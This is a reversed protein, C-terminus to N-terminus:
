TIYIKEKQCNTVELNQIFQKFFGMRDVRPFRFIRIISAAQIGVLYHVLIIQLKILHQNLPPVLRIKEKIFLHSKLLCPTSFILPIEILFLTVTKLTINTFRKM